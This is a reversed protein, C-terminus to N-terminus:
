REPSPQRKIDLLWLVSPKSGSFSMMAWLQKPCCQELSSPFAPVISVPSFLSGLPFYHEYILSCFRHLVAVTPAAWAACFSVHMFVLGPFSTALALFSPFMARSLQSHESPTQWFGHLKSHQLQLQPMWKNKFSIVALMSLQSLLAGRYTSLSSIMQSTTLGDEKSPM